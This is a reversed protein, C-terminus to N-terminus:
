VGAVMHVHPIGDELYEEGIPKFGHRRYFAVLHAQAGIMIPVDPYLSKTQDMAQTMLLHGLGQGRTDPHNVVRGISCHDPYSVGKPLLRAYAVLKGSVDYGLLHYGYQDKYDTDNYPCDQEVVFVVNRLNLLDYLQSKSLDEYRILDFRITM